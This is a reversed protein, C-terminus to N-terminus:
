GAKLLLFERRLGHHPHVKLVNHETFHAGCLLVCVTHNWEHSPGSPILDVSVPLLHPAWPSPLSPLSAKILVSNRNPFSLFEQLHMTFTSLAM